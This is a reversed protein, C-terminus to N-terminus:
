ACTLSTVGEQYDGSAGRLKYAKLTAELYGATQRPVFSSSVADLTTKVLTSTAFTRQLTSVTSFAARCFFRGPCIKPLPLTVFIPHNPSKQDFTVAEFSTSTSPQLLVFPSPAPDNFTDALTCFPSLRSYKAQAASPTPHVITRPLHSSLKKAEAHEAAGPLAFCYRKQDALRSETATFRVIIHAGGPRNDSPPARAQERARETNDKRWCANQSLSITSAFQLPPQPRRTILDPCASSCALGSWEPVIAGAGKTIALSSQEGDNDKNAPGGM